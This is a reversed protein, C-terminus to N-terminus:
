RLKEPAAELDHQEGPAAHQLKAKGNREALVIKISQPLLKRLEASSNKGFFPM